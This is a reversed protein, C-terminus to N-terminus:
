ELGHQRLRVYLQKRTLGLMKAARTKNHHGDQM